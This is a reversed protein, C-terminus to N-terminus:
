DMGLDMACGTPEVLRVGKKKSVRDLKRDGDKQQASAGKRGKKSKGRREAGKGNEEDEGDGHAVLGANEFVSAHRTSM